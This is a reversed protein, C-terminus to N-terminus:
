GRFQESMKELNFPSICGQLNCIYGQEMISERLFNNIDVPLISLVQDVSTEKFKGELNDLVFGLGIVFREGM